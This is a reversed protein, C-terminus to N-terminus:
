SLSTRFPIYVTRGNAKVALFTGIPADSGADEGCVINNRVSSNPHFQINTERLEAFKALGSGTISFSGGGESGYIAVAGGLYGANDSAFIQIYGTSNYNTWSSLTSLGNATTQFKGQKIMGNGINVESLGSGVRLRQACVQGGVVAFPPEASTGNYVKFAAADFVIESTDGLAPNSVSTIRMGAVRNGATVKLVYQGALNGDRSASASAESTVRADVNNVSASVTSIQSSLANDASAYATEVTNVRSTLTNIQGSRTNSETTVAAEVNTVRFALADNSEGSTLATEVTYVRASLGTTPTNLAAEIISIRNAEAAIATARATEETTVRAHARVLGTNPDNVTAYVVALNNALATDATELETKASLIAANRGNTEAILANARANTEALLAATRNAVEQNVTQVLANHDTIIDTLVPGLNPDDLPDPYTTGGGGGEGGSGGGVGVGESIDDLAEQIIYLLQLDARNLVEATLKSPDTFVVLRENTGRPTKRHLKVALGSAPPTSLVVKSTSQNVTYDTGITKLFGGVRVELSTLNLFPFPVSYETTGGDATYTVRSIAMLFLVGPWVPM